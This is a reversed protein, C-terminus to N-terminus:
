PSPAGTTSGSTPSGPAPAPATRPPGAALRRPGELRKVAVALIFALVLMLGWALSLRPTLVSPPKWSTWDRKNVQEFWFDRWEVFLGYVLGLCLLYLVPFPPRYRTLVLGATILLAADLGEHEGLHVAPALRGDGGRRIEEGLFFDGPFYFGLVAAIWVLAVLWVLVGIVVRVPDLPLRDLREWPALVSLGFAIAVGLAPLVNVLKADLDHQDVVGPLATVACLGSASFAALWGVKTGIRGAALCAISIAALSVPYNLFVLTRGLGGALGDHSVNYLDEPRLRAYTVVIVATAALLLAWVVDV